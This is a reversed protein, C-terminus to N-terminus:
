RLVEGVVKGVDFFRKFSEHLYYKDSFGIRDALDGELLTYEEGDKVWLAKLSGKEFIFGLFSLIELNKGKIPPDLSLDSRYSFIWSEPYRKKIVELLEDRSFRSFSINRNNSSRM